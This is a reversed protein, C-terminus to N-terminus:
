FDEASRVLLLEQRTSRHGPSGDLVDMARKVMLLIVDLCGPLTRLEGDHEIAPSFSFRPQQSVYPEFEQHYGMTAITSGPGVRGVNLVPTPWHSMWSGATMVQTVVPPLRHREVRALEHLLYLYEPIEDVLTRAARSTRGPFPQMREILAQRDPAIARIKHRGRDRFDEESSFIPFEASQAVKPDLSPGSHSTALEYAVHDLASRLNFLIEGITIPWDQPVHYVSDLVFVYETQQPNMEIVIAGRHLQDFEWADSKLGEVLEKARDAKARASEFM